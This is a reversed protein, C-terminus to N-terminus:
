VTIEDAECFRGLAQKASEKGLVPKHPEEFISKNLDRHEQQSLLPLVPRDIKELGKVTILNEGQTNGFASRTVMETLFAQWVGTRLM